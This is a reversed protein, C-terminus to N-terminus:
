TRSEGTTPLAPKMKEWLSVTLNGFAKGTRTLFTGIMECFAQSRLRRADEMFIELNEYSGVGEWRVRKETSMIDETRNDHKM